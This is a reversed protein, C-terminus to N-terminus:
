PYLISLVLPDIEDNLDPDELHEILWMAARESDVQTMLLARRCAAESVHGDMMEMLHKLGEHNSPIDPAKHTHQTPPATTPPTPTAEKVVEARVHCLAALLVEGGAVAATDELVSGGRMIRYGAGVGAAVEAVTSGQVERLKGAPTEGCIRVYVSVM